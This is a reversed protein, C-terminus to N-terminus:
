DRDDRAVVLSKKSIFLSVVAFGESIRPFSTSRRSPV